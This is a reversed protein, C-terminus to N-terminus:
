QILHRRPAMMPLQQAAAVVVDMDADIGYYVNYNFDKDEEAVASSEIAEVIRDIYYDEEGMLLYVPAFVGKNVATIIDRYTTSAM